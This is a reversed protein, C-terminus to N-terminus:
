ALVHQQFHCFLNNHKSCIQQLELWQFTCCPYLIKLFFVLYQQCCFVHLHLSRDSVQFLWSVCTALASTYNRSWVINSQWGCRAYIKGSMVRHSEDPDRSMRNNTSIFDGIYESPLTRSALKKACHWGQPIRPLVDPM